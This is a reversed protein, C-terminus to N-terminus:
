KTFVTANQSNPSEADKPPQKQFTNKPVDIMPCGARDWVSQLLSSGLFWTKLGIIFRHHVQSAGLIFGPQFAKPHGISLSVRFLQRGCYKSAMIERIKLFGVKQAIQWQGLKFCILSRFYIKVVQSKHPPCGPMTHTPVIISRYRQVLWEEVEKASGKLDRAQSYVIQNPPCGNQFTFVTRHHRKQLRWLTLKASATWYPFRPVLNKAKTFAQTANQM